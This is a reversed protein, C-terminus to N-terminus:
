KKCFIKKKNANKDLVFSTRGNRIALLVSLAVRVLEGIDKYGFYYVMENAASLTDKNFDLVVRETKKDVSKDNVSINKDM